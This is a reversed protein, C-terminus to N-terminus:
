YSTPAARWLSTKTAFPLWTLPPWEPQAKWPSRRPVMSPSLTSNRLESGTSPVRRDYVKRPVADPSAIDPVTLKPSYPLAFHDALLFPHFLCIMDQGRAIRALDSLDTPRQGLRAADCPCQTRRLISTG